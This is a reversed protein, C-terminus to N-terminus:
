VMQITHNLLEDASKIDAKITELCRTLNELNIPLDFKTGEFVEGIETNEDNYEENVNQGNIQKELSKIALSLQKVAMILGNDRSEEPQHILAQGEGAKRVRELYKIVWSLCQAEM